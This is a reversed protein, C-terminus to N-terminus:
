NAPRVADVLWADEVLAMQVSVKIGDAALKLTAKGDKIKPKGAKFPMSPIDQAQLVPDTDVFEASMAKAYAKKFAPTVTKSEAIWSKTDKNAEVLAVYGAYFKEAAKDPGEAPEAAIAPLSIWLFALVILRIAHRSM